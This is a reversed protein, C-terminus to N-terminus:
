RMQALSHVLMAREQFSRSLAILIHEAIIRALAVPALDDEAGHWMSVPTQIKELQFGWDRTLIGFDFSIGKGGTRVAEIQDAMMPAFIAPPVDAICRM